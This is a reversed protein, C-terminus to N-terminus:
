GGALDVHDHGEVHRRQRLQQGRRARDHDVALLHGGRVGDVQQQALVVEAEAVRRLARLAPVELAADGVHDEVGDGLAVDVHDVESGRQGLGSVPAVQEAPGGVTRFDPTTSTTRWERGFDWIRGYMAELEAPVEARGETVHVADGTPFFPSTEFDGDQVTIVGASLHMGMGAKMEANNAALLLRDRICM